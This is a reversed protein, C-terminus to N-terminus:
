EAAGQVSGNWACYLVGTTANQLSCQVEILTNMEDLVASLSEFEIEFWGACCAVTQSHKTGRAAEQADKPAAAGGIKSVTLEPGGKWRVGISTSKQDVSLGRAALLAGAEALSPATGRFFVLCKSPQGM